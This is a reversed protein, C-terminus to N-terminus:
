GDGHRCDMFNDLEKPEVSGSIGSARGDGHGTGDEFSDKIIEPISM